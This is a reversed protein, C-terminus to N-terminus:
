QQNLLYISWAVAVLSEILSVVDRGLRIKETRPYDANMLHFSRSLAALAVGILVYWIYIKM